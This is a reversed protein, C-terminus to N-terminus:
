LILGQSKHLTSQYLDYNKSTYNDAFSTFFILKVNENRAVDLLGDVTQRV